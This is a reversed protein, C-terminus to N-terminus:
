HAEDKATLEKGTLDKSPSEKATSDKDTPDKATLDLIFATQDSTFVFMRNGDPSFHKFLIPDAFSYQRKLQSSALDYVSLQSAENEVAILGSQSVAPNTGFIHGTQQGTAFSYTLVQEDSAYIVIWDGLGLVQRVAFSGKHTAIVLKRIVQDKNIDVEELLDDAGAAAGKLEPYKALEDRGATTSLSWLLLMKDYGVSFSPVENPFYHSWVLRGDRVDRIELDEDRAGSNNVRFNRLEILMCLTEPLYTYKEKKATRPKSIVLWSGVQAAIADGIKYGAVSRGLAPDLRAVIRESEGFKPLDIYITRDPAFWAGHFSKVEMTQINHTVDWVAGRTSQSVALWNFDPSIAAARLPALRAKPLKAVALGPSTSTLNELSHLILEGTIEETVMIQDYVDAARHKFEVTLNGKKIDVMGMANNKLPSVFFYDGRTASELDIGPALTIERLREGSPFRVLRSKQPSNTDMGIIRESGVFAYSHELISKVSAPLSVERQANMDWAFHRIRAGALFYRGDPSFKMAILHPKGGGARSVSYTCFALMDWPIFEKKSLVTSGTAVDILSLEMDRNLCALTAGDPSLESQLCPNVVTIEHIVSRQDAVSWSEVRMSANYFVVSRSDPSFQADYADVAPIYFLVAFPERTLVHIGGEDQSLIYKGDPSFRLHTVDPRLPRALAQKLVLGPLSEKTGFGSYAIVEAQWNAFEETPAKAKIDACGPPLVSINKLMLGLRRESPKTAGFLNSFWSGGKGHTQQFRDWFDVFAHPAFGARAMAYVAVQDAVQQKDEADANGKWPKRAGNEYLQHVKEFVDARDGVQTVGLLDRLRASFEIATQHTVIHGLEHSLVGALEDDDHVFAVMKRSVYVRGGTISFANTYNLEVLYFRFKMQNPPLYQVLRDGIERLHATLKDDEIIRTKHAITEALADGLDVEQQDSFINQQYSAQQIAPPLPCNSQASLPLASLTAVFLASILCV